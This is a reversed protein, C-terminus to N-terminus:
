WGGGLAKYLSILTTALTRDSQVVADEAGLLARQASLVNLFDTNGQTYLTTALEVARRNAAAAAALARHREQEKAYGILANEVEQLATLITQRYELAAQQASENEFAINARIRGADFLPWSVSPGISWSTSSWNAMDKLRSGSVNVAGNLVFRPYLDATAVGIRATAAHLRADARRIDPRRQLLESPLGVPVEPPSGPVPGRQTLEAVLAGPERALLVSLAYIAQRESAELAPIQAQTSAVLADANTVDLGSVFGGNFQRRTLAASRQQAELNGRAIEIDRQFSRLDVYNLAVEAALSVRVDREDEVAFDVDADAAEVSRRVGGFVDLEWSADLGSRFLDNSASSSRGSGSRSYAGTTDV